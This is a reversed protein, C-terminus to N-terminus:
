KAFNNAVDVPKNYFKDFTSALSWGSTSLFQDLSVSYVSAKSIAAASTSYPRFLEVNIGSSRMVVMNGKSITRRSVPIFKVWSFHRTTVVSADQSALNMRLTTIVCFRSASPCLTFKVVMLKLGSHITQFTEELYVKRTLTESSRMDDLNGFYNTQCKQSSVVMVTKLTLARLSLDKSNYITELYCIVKSVNKNTHIMTSNTKAWFARKLHM